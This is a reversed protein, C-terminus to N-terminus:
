DGLLHTSGNSFISIELVTNSPTLSERVSLIIVSVSPLTTSQSDPNRPLTPQVENWCLTLLVTSSQRYVGVIGSKVYHPNLYEVEPNPIM